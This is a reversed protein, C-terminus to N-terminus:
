EIIDDHNKLGFKGSVSYDFVYVWKSFGKDSYNLDSPSSYNSNGYVSFQFIDDCHQFAWITYFLSTHTTAVVSEEEGTTSLFKIQYM